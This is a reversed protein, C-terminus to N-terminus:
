PSSTALPSPVPNADPNADPNAAKAADRADHIQDQAALHDEFRESFVHTGDYKAVYFLFKTDEPNLTADLSAKGPSSIPTPPLGPNVYTNYPNPTDVEAFTLPRDPTQTIGLGYEVTPDVELKQGIRLRHTLVGAIRTREQPVVSEKEVISALTVWDKLAMKNPTRQYIPLAQKEFQGLMQDIIAPVSTQGKAVSYTDPYLYGELHPIGEPLWPYRDRPITQVAALFEDAKFYGLSEFYAAMKRISWGEPITFQSQVVQGTRITEAITGLPQTPALQYTGAQFNAAKAQGLKERISAWRAMMDWAAASRILGAQELQRGIDKASSGDTVDVQVSEDVGDRAAKVPGSAWSWWSWGQWLGILAILPLILLPSPVKRTSRPAPTM